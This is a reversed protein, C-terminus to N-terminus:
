RRGTRPQLAEFALMLPLAEPPIHVSLGSNPGGPIGLAGAEYGRHARLDALLVAANIRQGIRAESESRPAHVRKARYVVLERVGAACARRCLARIYYSNFESEAYTAAATHPVRVHRRVSSRTRPEHRALLGFEHLSAALSDDDGTALAARLLRPWEARGLATFRESFYLRGTAEDERREDLMWTRTVPDLHHFSLGM